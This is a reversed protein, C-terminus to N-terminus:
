LAANFQITLELNSVVHFNHLKQKTKNQSHYLIDITVLM